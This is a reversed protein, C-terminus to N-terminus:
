DDGGKDDGEDIREEVNGPEATVPPEPLDDADIFGYGSTADGKIKQRVEGTDLIGADVRDKEAKAKDAELKAKEQDSMEYLPKFIYKLDPDVAGWINIQAFRFVIDLDPRFFSEQYAHITDDYVRMEGDTTANLGTPTVGTLKVLPIRSISAMHEQAQAQLKDLGALSMSVNKLDETDKDALMLNRNNRLNNFFEARNFVEQGGSEMTAAMDTLLIMISFSQVADSVSQRTQLWNDVYPKAMQTRSMGGFSFAPKLLDPVPMSIVCRLRSVHLQKGLVYWMQPNYWDDALPNMANYWQPYCWTAEIHKISKLKGKSMKLKTAENDPRGDGIDTLLEKSGVGIETDDGTDFYLHAVGMFGDFLSLKRFVEQANLRKMEADLDKIKQEREKHADNEKYDEPLAGGNKTKVGEEEESQIEIWNRTADTSITESILRYEPILTLESLYPYGLFAYGQNFAVSYLSAAAWAVAPQIANDMAMELKKADAKPIVGPMPAARRFLADAVERMLEENERQEVPKVRSAAVAAASVKLRRKLPALTPKAAAKVPKGKSHRAAM